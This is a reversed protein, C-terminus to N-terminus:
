IPYNTFMIVEDIDDDDEYIESLRMAKQILDTQDEELITNKLLQSDQVYREEPSSCQFVPFASHQRIDDILDDDESDFQFHYPGQGNTENDDLEDEYGSDEDNEEGPICRIQKANFYGISNISKVLHTKTGSFSHKDQFTERLIIM